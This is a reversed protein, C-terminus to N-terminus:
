ASPSETEIAPPLLHVLEGLKPVIRDGEWDVHVWRGSLNGIRPGPPAGEEALVRQLTGIAGGHTVCLVTGGPHTLGLCRVADLLRSAFADRREGGPTSALRGQFWADLAGPWSAEIQPRTLGSWEGVDYEKLEPEAEIPPLGLDEALLAATRETRLMGSHVVATLGLQRVAPRAQVVQAAGEPALPIDAWGQWRGLVNWESLGHRVLLLDTM